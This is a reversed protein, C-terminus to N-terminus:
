RFSALDRESRCEPYFLFPRAPSGRTLASESFLTLLPPFFPPFDEVFIERDEFVLLANQLSYRTAQFFIPLDNFFPAYPRSLFGPPILLPSSSVAISSVSHSIM